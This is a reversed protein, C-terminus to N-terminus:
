RPRGVGGAAVTGLPLHHLRLRDETVTVLAGAKLQAGVRVTTRQLLAAVAPGRLGEQRIRIVSPAREGTVALLRHFDADLTVVTRGLARALDLIEADPARSRGIDAVHLADIGLDALHRAASRPLGQDLLLRIV